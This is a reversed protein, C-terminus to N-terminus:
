GVLTLAIRKGVSEEVPRYCFKCIRCNGEWGTGNEKPCILTEEERIQREKSIPKDRFVLDCSPVKEEAQSKLYAVRVRKPPRAPVGTEADASFWVRINKLRSLRVLVSRFEPLRWSRTYVWFRKEPCAQVIQIWKEVYEPSYFDGSVHIRVLKNTSRKLEAVAKEVFSKQKSRRWNREFLSDKKNKFFSYHSRTAYCISSCLTSKGPCTKIAPISFNLIKGLKNNGETFFHSM